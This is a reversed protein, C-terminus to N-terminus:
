GERVRGGYRRVLARIRPHRGEGRSAREQEGGHSQGGPRKEERADSQEQLILDSTSETDNRGRSVEEHM